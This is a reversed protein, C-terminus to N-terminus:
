VLIARPFLESLLITARAFLGDQLGSRSPNSVPDGTLSTRSKTGSDRSDHRRAELPVVM